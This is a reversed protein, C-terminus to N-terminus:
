RLLPHIDADISHLTQQLGYIQRHQNSPENFLFQKKTTFQEIVQQYQHTEYIPMASLHAIFDLSSVQEEELM